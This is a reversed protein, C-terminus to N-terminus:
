GSAPRPRGRAGLARAPVIAPMGLTLATTGAATVFSRRSLQGPGEDFDDEQISIRQFRSGHPSLTRAHTKAKRPRPLLMAREFPAIM